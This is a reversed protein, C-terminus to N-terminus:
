SNIAHNTSPSTDGEKNLLNEKDEQASKEENKKTKKDKPKTEKEPRPERYEYIDIKNRQVYRVGLFTLGFSLPYM